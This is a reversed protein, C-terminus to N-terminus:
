KKYVIEDTFLVFHSVYRACVFLFDSLRNIFVFAQESIKRHEMLIVMLREGRRCISRALHLSGRPLIFNTLKPLKSDYEDIWKELTKVHEEGFYTRELKLSSSTTDIPTAVHSGLDLLRSQVWELRSLVDNRKEVNEKLVYAHDYEVYFLSIASSIEDLTGVVDFHIDNKPLREGNYLSTIGKDGTKTYLM